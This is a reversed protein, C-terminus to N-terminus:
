QLLLLKEFMDKNPLNFFCSDAVVLSFNNEPFDMSLWDDIIETDQGKHKMLPSWREFSHKNMDVAFTNFGHEICIDRLEPTAGLVLANGEAMEAAKEVVKLDDDSPVMIKINRRDTARVVATDKDWHETM